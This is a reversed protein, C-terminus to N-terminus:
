PENFSPVFCKLSCIYRTASCISPLYVFWSSRTLRNYLPFVSSLAFWDQSLYIYWLTCLCSGPHTHGAQDIWVCGGWVLLFNSTYFHPPTTISIIVYGLGLHFIFIFFHLVAFLSSVRLCCGPFLQQCKFAVHPLMKNSVQLLVHM